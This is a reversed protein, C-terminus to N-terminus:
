FLPQKLSLVCTATESPEFGHRARSASMSDLLDRVGNWEPADVDHVDSKQAAERLMSLFSRSQERMEREDIRGARSPAMKLQLTLWDTLLASEHKALVEAIRTKQGKAMIDGEEENPPYARGRLGSVRSIVGCDAEPSDGLVDPSSWGKASRM